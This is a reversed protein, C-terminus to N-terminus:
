KKDPTVAKKVTSAAKGAGESIAKEIPEMVKQIPKSAGQVGKDLDKKAADLKEKSSTKQEEASSPTVFGAAPPSLLALALAWIAYRSSSRAM